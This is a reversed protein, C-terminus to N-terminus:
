NIICGNGTRDKVQQVIRKDVSDRNHPRAGAYSLVRNYVANSASNDIVVSATKDTKLGTWADITGNETVFIFQASASKGAIKFRTADSNIVVGTPAGAEGNHGPVKVTGVVNNGNADYVTGVGTGNDAVVIGRPGVALGWPNVLRADTHAASSSGDSVLNQQTYSTASFFCRHELSEIPNLNM